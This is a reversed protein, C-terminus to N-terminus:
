SVGLFASRVLCFWYIFFLFYGSKNQPQPLPVDSENNKNQKERGGKDSHGPHGSHATREQVPPM